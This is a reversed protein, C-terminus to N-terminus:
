DASRKPPYPQDRDADKIPPLEDGPLGDFDAEGSSHHIVAGDGPEPGREERSSVGIQGLLRTLFDAISHFPKM